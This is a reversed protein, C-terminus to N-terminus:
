QKAKTRYQELVSDMKQPTLNEHFDYNVQVAPAWSCGGICEV